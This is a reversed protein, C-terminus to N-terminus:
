NLSQFLSMIIAKTWMICPSKPYFRTFTRTIWFLLKDNTLQHKISRLGEEKDEHAEFELHLLDSVSIPDDNENAWALATKWFTEIPHNKDYYHIIDGIVTRRPKGSVSLREIISKNSLHM